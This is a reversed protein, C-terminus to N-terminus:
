KAILLASTEFWFCILEGKNDTVLLNNALFIICSFSRIFGNLCCKNQKKCGNIFEYKTCLAIICLLCGKICSVVAIKADVTINQNFIFYLLLIVVKTHKVIEPCPFFINFFFFLACHFCHLIKSIAITM